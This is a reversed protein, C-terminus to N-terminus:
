AYEEREAAHARKGETATVRHDGYEPALDDVSVAPDGFFLHDIIVRQRLTDGPNDRDVGRRKDPSFYTFEGTHDRCRQADHCRREDDARHNGHQKIIKNVVTTFDFNIRLEYDKIRRKISKSIHLDGFFLVTQIKWINILPCCLIRKNINNLCPLERPLDYSTIYFGSYMLESIYKPSFTFGVLQELNVYDKNKNIINVINDPEENEPIYLIGNVHSLTDSFGM